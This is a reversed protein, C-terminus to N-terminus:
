WATEMSLCVSMCMDVSVVCVCVRVGIKMSACAYAGECVRVCVSGRLIHAINGIHTPRM